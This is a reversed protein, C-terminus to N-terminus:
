KLVNARLMAGLVANPLAEQYALGILWSLFPKLPDSQRWAKTLTNILIAESQSPSLSTLSILGWLKPAYQDYFLTFGPMDKGDPKTSYATM